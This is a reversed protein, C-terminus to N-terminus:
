RASTQTYKDTKREKICMWGLVYYSTIAIIHYRSPRPKGMKTKRFNTIVWNQLGNGLRTMGVGLDEDCTQGDTRTSTSVFEKLGRVQARLGRIDDDREKLERRLVEWGQRLEEREEQRAEVENRLLRLETDTRLFQQNLQSYKTQWFTTTESENQSLKDLQRQFEREMIAMENELHAIRREREHLQTTATALERDRERQKAKSSAGWTSSSGAGSRVSSTRHAGSGAASTTDREKDKGADNDRDKDTRDTLPAGGAGNAGGTSTTTSTGGGTVGGGGADYTEETSSSATVAARPPMTPMAAPGAPSSDADRDKDDDKTKQHLSAGQRNGAHLTHTGARHVHGSTGPGSGAAGGRRKESPNM